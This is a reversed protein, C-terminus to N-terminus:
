GDNTLWEDVTMIWAFRIGVYQWKGDHGMTKNYVVNGGMDALWKKSFSGGVLLNM